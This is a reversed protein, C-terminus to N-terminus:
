AHGGGLHKTFPGLHQEFRKWRGLSTTYIPRRVQLASATKVRRKNKHFELCQPDWELGCSAVLNRSVEEQNHVLEEYVVDFVPLPLARSWHDMLREYQAYVVGLHDLDFAFLLGGQAFNHFFCSVCIDRPDRRCHVIRAEPFLTAILGLHVFNMTMKDVVRAAEGGLEQLRVLHAEALRRIAEPSADSLCEPYRKSTNLAAPLEQAMVEIERLEGAGHIANHSAMIQEVLTTSSRPMGLVFIPLDSQVGWSATREFFEPTFTEVIRDVLAVYADPDFVLGRKRYYAKKLENAGKAYKMAEDCRRAKELVQGLAFGLLMRDDDSRPGGALMSQMQEIEADAFEHKSSSALAYYAEAGDPELEVGRHYHETAEEVRGLGVLANGLNVHAPTYRPNLELSRRLHSEAAAYDDLSNLVLGLNNEAEHCRPDLEIARRLHSLAGEYDGMSRLTDGLNNHAAVYQPDIALAERLEVVAEGMSGTDKLAVGLSNHISASGPALAVGRRLCEVGDQGRGQACLALGLNNHADANGPALAIAKRLHTEAEVPRGTERLTVGLDNLAQPDNPRMEAARAFVGVAEEVSGMRYLAAGLSRCASVDNPDLDLVRQFCGRAEGPRGMENLTVGLNKHAAVYAPELEVARRFEAAAEDLRKMARLAAGLNSHYAAVSGRLGIARRILEESKQNQGQQHAIVGLLHLADAHDPRTSLIQRYLADADAFRGAQHHAVAQDFLRALAQAEGNGMGDIWFLLCPLPVGRGAYLRHGVMM